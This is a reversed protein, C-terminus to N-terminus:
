RAKSKGLALVAQLLSQAERSLTRLAGPQSFYYEAELSSRAVHRAELAEDGHTWLSHAVHVRKQNLAQCRKFVKTINAKKEPWALVMLRRTVTCLMAFDYPATVIDFLEDSLELRAALAVRITFDLQSFEFIFEGLERYAKDRRVIEAAGLDAADFRKKRKEVMPWRRTNPTQVLTIAAATMQDVWRERQSLSPAFLRGTTTVAM